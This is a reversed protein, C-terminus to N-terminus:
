GVLGKQVLIRAVDPFLEPRLFDGPRHKQVIASALLDDRMMPISLQEASDKVADAGPGLTRMVIVPVPADTRHYRLGVINDEGAIILTSASLGLRPAMNQRQRERRRAGIIHPDGELDKRERKFETRTMRMDRLFLWRQLSLDLVGIVIFALAAVALIPKAAAVLLPVVCSEGCTHAHFMAQLWFRLVLFLVTALLTVKFLSKGFEVVNRMSFIRKLGAAPNVHEFKPKVTEFSFVPGLTGIMGTVISVLVLIAVAPAITMMIIDLSLSIAVRWATAFSDLYIRSVVGILQIIRDRITPWVMFLYVLTALLGMGSIMDRSSSVRGKKRADRLKKQSAPLAKEETENESM